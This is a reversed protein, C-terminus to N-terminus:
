PAIEVEPLTEPDQVTLSLIYMGFSKQVSNWQWNLANSALNRSTLVSPMFRLDANLRRLFLKKKAQFAEECTAPKPGKMCIHDSKRYDVLYGM